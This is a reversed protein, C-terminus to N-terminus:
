IKFTNMVTKSKVGNIQCCKFITSCKIMHLNSINKFPFNYLHLVKLPSLHGSPALDKKGENSSWKIGFLYACIAMVDSRSTLQLGFPLMALVSSQSKMNLYQM